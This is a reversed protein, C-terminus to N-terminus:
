FSDLKGSTFHPSQKLLPAFFILEPRCVLSARPSLRWLLISFQGEARLRFDQDNRMGTLMEELQSYM